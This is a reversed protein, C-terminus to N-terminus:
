GTLGLRAAIEGAVDEPTQTGVDVILDGPATGIGAADMIGELEPARTLSWALHEGSERGHLRASVLDLPVRLRVITVRAGPIAQEYRARDDPTEVVDALVLVQAGAERYTRAVAALNRFGLRSNFRDDAPAPWAWRLYDMDVVAHPVNRRGLLDSLADATTSKGAGVPGTIVIVLPAFQIGGTEPM